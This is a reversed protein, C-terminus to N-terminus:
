AEARRRIIVPAAQEHPRAFPLKKGKGKGSSADRRERAALLNHGSESPFTEGSGCENGASKQSVMSLVAQGGRSTDAPGEAAKRYFEALADM